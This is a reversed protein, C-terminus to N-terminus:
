LTLLWQQKKPKTFGWFFLFLFLFYYFIIIIQSLDLKFVYGIILVFIYM